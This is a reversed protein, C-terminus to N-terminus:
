ARTRHRTLTALSMFVLAAATPEPVNAAALYPFSGRFPVNNGDVGDGTVAGASLLGLEADIVDDALGRGNLFGSPDSTDITLVDPLLVPTLADANAQDSLGAISTNVIAGFNAFDGAPDALNFATKDAGNPILATTIAPRGMRDVQVGGRSTTAWVGIDSAGLESSPVELVVASVDLGAFFDDGTFNFGDNFGNLDFFFPDDFVGATVAEVGTGSATSGTTGAVPGSPGTLTFGQTGGAAAGFTAEYSLDAVADGNNDIQFAYTVDTGFTSPSFVGVAPNVTLILVTNDPNTPSQFAFLDNIDSQGDGIVNPADLHDAAGCRSGASTLLM